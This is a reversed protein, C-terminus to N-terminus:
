GNGTEKREAAMKRDWAAKDDALIRKYEAIGALEAKTDGGALVAIWEEFSTGGRGGHDLINRRYQNALEIGRAEGHLRKDVRACEKAYSADSRHGFPQMGARYEGPPRM